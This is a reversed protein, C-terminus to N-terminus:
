CIAKNSDFNHQVRSQSCILIFAPIVLDMLGIALALLFEAQSISMKVDNARNAVSFDSGSLPTDTQSCYLM